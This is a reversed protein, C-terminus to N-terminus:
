RSSRDAVFRATTAAAGGRQLAALLEDIRWALDAVRRQLEDIEGARNGIRGPRPEADAVRVSVPAILADLRRLFPSRERPEGLAMALLEVPHLGLVRSIDLIHRLKLDLRGGLLRGLDTGADEALLRREVERRSMGSLEILSSLVERARTLAGRTTNGAEADVVPSSESASGDRMADGGSRRAGRGWRWGLPPSRQM